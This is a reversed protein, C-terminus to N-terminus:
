PLSTAAKVSEAAADQHAAEDPVGQLYWRVLPILVLLGVASGGIVDSTWHAGLYVRSVDILFPMGIAALSTPIRFRRDQIHIWALAALAGYFATGGMAHGSPFSTGATKVAVRVMEADPRARDWFEKLAVDIPIAILSLLVFAAARPLGARWVGFAVLAGLFPVIAPSGCWTAGLMMAQLAPPNREQLEQTVKLDLDQLFSYRVLIGFGMFVACAFAVAALAKKGDFLKKTRALRQFAM